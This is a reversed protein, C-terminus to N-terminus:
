MQMKKIKAQPQEFPPAGPRGAQQEGPAGAARRSPLPPVTGAFDHNIARAHPSTPSVGHFDKPPMAGTILVFTEVGTQDVRPVHKGRGRSGSL